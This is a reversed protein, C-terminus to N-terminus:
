AIPSGLGCGALLVRTNLIKKQLDDPIYGRNKSSCVFRLFEGRGLPPPKPTM